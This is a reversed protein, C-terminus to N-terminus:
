EVKFHKWETAIQTEHQQYSEPPTPIQQLEWVQMYVIVRNIAQTMAEVIGAMGDKHGQKFVARRLFEMSGKRILTFLTVPPEGAEHLLKAEKKTWNASKRLGDEVSRHTLHILPTHLKLLEGSFQPSEHISGTWGSIHERKFVRTVVDHEWGGHNLEHGYCINQRHMSMSAESGSEIHVAIEQFLRPTVREDSDIYMVWDTKVAALAKTRREGFNSTTDKLVRAGNRKAIDVTQDDSGNDVVIIDDCWQLTELCNAILSEDNFSLVIATISLTNQSVM